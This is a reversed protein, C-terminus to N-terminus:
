RLRGWRPVLLQAIGLTRNRRVSREQAALLPVLDIPEPRGRPRRAASPKGSSGGNPLGAQLRLFEVQRMRRDRQKRRKERALWSPMRGDQAFLVEVIRRRQAQTTKRARM